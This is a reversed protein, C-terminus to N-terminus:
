GSMENLWSLLVLWFEGGSGFGALVAFGMRGCMAGRVANASRDGCGANGEDVQRRSFQRPDFRSTM